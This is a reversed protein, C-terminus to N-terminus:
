TVTRLFELKIKTGVGIESEIYLRGGMDETIRKAVSMGIGVSSSNVASSKSWFRRFVKPLEDESIGCGNDEIFIRVTMPDCEAYIRVQGGKTHEAANKVLNTVAECLWLRDCNLKVGAKVDNILEVDNEATIAALQAAADAAIESIDNERFVYKVAGADLRALKLTATILLSIREICKKDRLLYGQQEDYPMPASLLIDNNLKLGACPTKIQHSFDDLYDALFMKEEKIKDVLHESHVRLASVAEGLLGIDHEDSYVIKEDHELQQTLLRIDKFVRNMFFLGAALCVIVGAATLLDSLIHQSVASGGGLTDGPEYGYDALVASGAAIDAETIEDLLINATQEESIGLKTLRGAVGLRYDVAARASAKNEYEHLFFSGTFILLAFVICVELFRRASRDALTVTLGGM